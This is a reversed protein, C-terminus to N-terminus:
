YSECGTEHAAFLVRECFRVANGYFIQNAITEGFWKVVSLALIEIGEIGNIWKPMAAGDFDTGIALCEAAGADLFYEIQRLFDSSKCDEESSLFAPYLNLGILGGRSIMEKVQEGSLNRPHPCIKDANSHTAIFPRRAVNCVQWFSKRNLHSVDIVIGQREAERVVDAGFATLTGNSGAGGAIRNEGNWTLTLFSVGAQKLEKLRDLRGGLLGAGEVSLLYSCKHMPARGRYPILINGDTEFGRFAALEKQFLAYQAEEDLTDPMWFAFTQVWKHYETGRKLDLHLDNRYLSKEAKVCESVTDCHLDFFDVAIEGKGFRDIGM